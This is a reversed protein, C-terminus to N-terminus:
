HVFDVQRAQGNVRCPAGRLFDAPDTVREILEFDTVIQDVLLPNFLAIQAVGVIHDDNRILPSTSFTQDEVAFRLALRQSIGFAILEFRVSYVAFRFVDRASHPQLAREFELFEDFGASQEDCKTLGTEERRFESQRSLYFGSARRRLKVRGSGNDLSLNQLRRMREKVAIRLFRDRHTVGVARQEGNGFEVAFLLDQHSEGARVFRNQASQHAADGFGAVAGRNNVNWRAFAAYDKKRGIRTVAPLVVALERHEEVGDQM